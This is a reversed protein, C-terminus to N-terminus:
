DQLDVYEIRIRTYAGYDVSAAADLDATVELLGGQPLDIPYIIRAGPDITLAPAGTRPGFSAYLRDSINAGNVKVHFTMLAEAGSDVAAGVLTLRARLGNRVRIFSNGDSFQLPQDSQGPTLLKYGIDDFADRVRRNDIFVEQAM